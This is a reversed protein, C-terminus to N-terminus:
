AIVNEKKLFISAYKLIKKEKEEKIMLRKMNYLSLVNYM